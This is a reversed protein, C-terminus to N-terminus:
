AVALHDVIEAPLANQLAASQRDRGFDLVEDPCARSLHNCGPSWSVVTTFDTTDTAPCDHNPVTGSHKNFTLTSFLFVV